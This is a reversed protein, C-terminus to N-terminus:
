VRELTEELGPSTLVFCDDISTCTCGLGVKLIRQMQDIRVRQMELEELKAQAAKKFGQSFSSKNGNIQDVMQKTEKISFGSEKMVITLALSRLSKETYIRRGNRRQPKPVVGASEYYRIASAALGSLEAVEGISYESM